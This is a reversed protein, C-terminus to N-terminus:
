REACGPTEAVLSGGGRGLRGDSVEARSPRTTTGIFCEEEEIDCRLLRGERAEDSSRPEEAIDMWRRECGEGVEVLGRPLLATGRSVSILLM